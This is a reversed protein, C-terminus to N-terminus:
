IVYIMNVEKNYFVSHVEVLSQQPEDEDRVGYKSSVDEENGM